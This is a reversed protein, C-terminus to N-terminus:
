LETCPKQILQNQVKKTSHEYKALFSFFYSTCLKKTSNLSFDRLLLKAKTSFCYINFDRFLILYIPILIIVLNRALNRRLILYWIVKVHKSFNLKLVMIIDYNWFIYFKYLFEVRLETIIINKYNLFGM